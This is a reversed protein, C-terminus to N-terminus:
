DLKYKNKFKEVRGGGVHCLLLETLECARNGYENAMILISM